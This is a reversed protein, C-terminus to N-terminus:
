RRPRRCVALWTRAEESLGKEVGFLRGQRRRGTLLRMVHHKLGKRYVQSFLEVEEYHRGLLGGLTERTFQRVHYDKAGRRTEREGNPVGFIATAEEKLARNLSRLVQEADEVHELTQFSVLVEFTGAEDLADHLDWQRFTVRESAFHKRAHEVLGADLELGVVAAAREGLM